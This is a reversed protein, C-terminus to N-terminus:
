LASAVARTLAADGPDIGYVPAGVADLLVMRPRGGTRKKDGRMAAEVGAAAVGEARVPLGNAALLAGVEAVVDEDLGRLEASLRLAAMLGVAVAEGHLLTGYGAAAEVGHGITHGLNLVARLGRETPDEGVVRAKYAASLRVLETRAAPEGPGPAWARVLEWLRGGALLATKVVEAFGASWERPPLTELLVPDAVVAEPLHFAGVDNKAAVDIATKGGIAADVQGVLTTPVAIWALGRRFTAAALGAVDTVAGGGMAVVVDRRELEAAALARWLAELQVASKAQEGGAMVVTEADVAPARDAVADDVLLVARRDGVLRPLIDLAGPRCIPAVQISAAVVRADPEGDVQVDAAAAYGARREAHLARFRAEDQALPRRARSPQVRAWATDAEVDLWVVTARDRLLGAAEGRLAGGGLALVGAEGELLRAIVDAELARFAEEGDDAFIETIPRGATEEIAADADVFPVRRREALLRGVTSKGSGMFGVVVTKVADM